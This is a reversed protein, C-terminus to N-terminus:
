SELRKLDEKPGTVNAQFWDAKRQMDQDFKTFKDRYLQELYEQRRVNMQM